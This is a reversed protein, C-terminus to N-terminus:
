IQIYNKKLHGVKSFVESNTDFFFAWVLSLEDCAWVLHDPVGRAIIVAKLSQLGVGFKALFDHFVCV